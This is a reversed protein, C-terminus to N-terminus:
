TCWYAAYKSRYGSTYDFPRNAPHSSNNQSRAAQAYFEQQEKCDPLAKWGPDKHM